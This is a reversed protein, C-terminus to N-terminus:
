ITYYTKLFNNLFLSYDKIAGYSNFDNACFSHPQQGIIKREILKQYQATANYSRINFYYCIERAPVSKGELYMLWPVFFTALNLDQNSRLKNPLFAEIDVQYWQWAKEYISKKLPVYTHVLPADININYHRKLLRIGNFSAALTPTDTGKEQMKRLSKTAIFISAINNNRFFHQRQLPRAVFVDDNFYIFNESLDPIRHLHAEIIHSNFTPLYSRDIIETHDIIHVNHYRANLWEPTQNDTIIYINRIWPLYKLVSHVSYYLENHNAFRAPDGAYRGQKYPRSEQSATQFKEQWVPDHNNVWTFVADIPTDSVATQADQKQLLEDHRILTYEDNEPITVENNIIPYKKNLYDRFFMGPNKILKKIKKLHM